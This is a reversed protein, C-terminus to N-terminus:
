CQPCPPRSTTSYTFTSCPVGQVICPTGGSYGSNGGTVVVTSGVVNGPTYVSGGNGVTSHGTNYTYSGGTYGANSPPHYQPTTPMTPGQQFPKGGGTQYTTGQSSTSQPFGLSPSSRQVSTVGSPTGEQPRNGHGGQPYQPTGQPATGPANVFLGGGGTGHVATDRSPGHQPFSGEAGPPPDGTGPGPLPGSPQSVGSSTGFSVGGGGVSGTTTPPFPTSLPAYRSCDQQPVCILLGDQEAEAYGENCVCGGRRCITVCNGPHRQGCKPACTSLCPKYRSNDPCKPPCENIKVCYKKSRTRILGPPCDCGFACDKNCTTRIPEGCM